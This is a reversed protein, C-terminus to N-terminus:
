CQYKQLFRPLVSGDSMLKYQIVVDPIHPTDAIFERFERLARVREEPVKMMEIFGRPLTLGLVPPLAEAEALISQYRRRGARVLKLYESRQPETSKNFTVDRSALKVYWNRM